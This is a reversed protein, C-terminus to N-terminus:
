GGTLMACELIRSGDVLRTNEVSTINAIDNSNSNRNSNSCPIPQSNSAIAYWGMPLIATFPMGAATAAVFSSLCNFLNDPQEILAEPVYELFNPQIGGQDNHRQAM